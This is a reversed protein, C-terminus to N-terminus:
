KFANVVEELTNWKKNPNFQSTHLCYFIKKPLAGGFEQRNEIKDRARGGLTMIAKPQLIELEKILFNKCNKYLKNNFKKPSCCALDTFVFNDDLKKSWNEFNTLIKFGDKEDVLRGELWKNYKQWKNKHRISKIAVAWNKGKRFKPTEGIVFIGEGEKYKKGVYFFLRYESFHSYEPNNSCKKCKNIENFVKQLKKETEPSIQLSM